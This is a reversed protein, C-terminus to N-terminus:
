RTRPFKRALDELNTPESRRFDLAQPRNELQDLDEDLQAWVDEVRWSSGGRKGTNNLARAFLFMLIVAIIIWM